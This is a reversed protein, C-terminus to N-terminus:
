LQLDHDEKWNFNENLVQLRVNTQQQTTAKTCYATRHLVSRQRVNNVKGKQTNPTSTGNNLGKTAGIAKAGASIDDAKRTPANAFAIIEIEEVSGKTIEKFQLGYEYGGKQSGQGSPNFSQLILENFHEDGM